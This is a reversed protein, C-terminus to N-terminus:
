DIYLFENLAMIAQCYNVLADQRHLDGITKGAGGAYTQAQLNMFGVGLSIEDKTAPRCLALSYLTRVQAATDSGAEKAVRTALHKAQDRIFENNLMMLAAPAVITTNRVACSRTSDPLDFAELMPMLMSRKTYIYISRRWTNPGDKVNTPWKKTSGTASADSHIWPKISPGYMQKNLTGSVALISDRVIEAELRMPKRYSLYRNTPDATLKPRDRTTSQRYVASTLIQKHIRKLSWGNKILDAALFDLLRPHSPKDGQAGFNSATKVIGVGFHHQWLRNVIVRALLRGAGQKTDTIWNAM